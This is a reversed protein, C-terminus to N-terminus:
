KENFITKRLYFVISFRNGKTVYSNCHELLASRLFIIYGGEIRIVVGIESLILNGGEFNGFVVIVCFSYLCDNDDKHPDTAGQRINQDKEQLSFNISFTKFFSLDTKINPISINFTEYLESFRYKVLNAILHELKIILPFLNKNLYNYFEFRKENGLVHNFHDEKIDVDNDFNKNTEFNKYINNRNKKLIKFSDFQDRFNNQIFEAVFCYKEDLTPITYANHGQMTWFGGNITYTNRINKKKNYIEKLENKFDNSIINLNKTINNFLLEKESVDFFNKIVLTLIYLENDIYQYIINNKNNNLKYYKYLPYQDINHNQILEHLDKIKDDVHLPIIYGSDEKQISKNIKNITKKYKKDNSFSFTTSTTSSATSIYTSTSTKIRKNRDFNRDFLIDINGGDCTAEVQMRKNLLPNTLLYLYNPIVTSKILSITSRTKKNGVLRTTM